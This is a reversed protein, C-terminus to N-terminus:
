KLEWKTTVNITIDQQGLDVRVPAASADMTKAVAMLPMPNSQTIQEDISLVNGLKSGTLEAYSQAKAKASAIALTRANAEAIKQDFVYPSTSNISLSNGVASQANQIIMGASKADRIVIMFSQTSRYGTLKAPANNPYSYEPNTSLNLAKIYKAEVGSGKLSARMADASKATAALSAASSAAVSSVYADVRVSDPTVKVTGDGVVNVYRPGQNPGYSGMSGHMTAMVSLAVFLVAAAASALHIPKLKMGM